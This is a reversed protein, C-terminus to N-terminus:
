RAAIRGSMNMTAQNASKAPAANAHAAMSFWAGTGCFALGATKTRFSYGGCYIRRVVFLRTAKAGPHLEGSVSKFRRIDGFAGFFDLL